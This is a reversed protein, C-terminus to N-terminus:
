YRNNYFYNYKDFLIEIIKVEICLEKQICINLVVVFKVLFNGYQKKPMLKNTKIFHKIM